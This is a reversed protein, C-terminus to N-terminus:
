ELVMGRVTSAIARRDYRDRKETDLNKYIEWYGHRRHTVSYTPMMGATRYYVRKSVWIEGMDIMDTLILRWVLEGKEYGDFEGRIVHM